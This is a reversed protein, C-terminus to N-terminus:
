GARDVPQTALPSLAQCLRDVEVALDVLAEGAEALDGSRAAEEVRRAADQALRASFNGVSGKLGHAQTHLAEAEGDALAQKMAAVTEPASGLFMGALEGLLERDGDLRALAGALDFLEGQPTQGGGGTGPGEAAVSPGAAGAAAWLARTLEKPDIPKSVYDDMGAALCDERDGKMAHATMAVIWQHRGTEREAERIKRTAALGDMEPMQVDMFVAGFAELRLAALAEVGNRVATVAHGRNELVRTALRCNVENDEALLIRLPPEARTETRTVGPRDPPSGSPGGLGFLSTFYFTSGEGPRSELWIRGGMLEVLQSSITLGLGTGGYRRSTSGDAQEFANFIARQKEWPIGIGTDRVAFRLHAKGEERGELMVCVVVEGRDTFKIANGLLNTLVQRLRGSDGVLADPVTSPVECRLALGKQEARLAVPRVTRDLAERLSFRVADFELKGAEVKSSDLIDNIVRMLDEASARVTELCERQPATLDTELALQTMGIVGNMPTRIEHSMNALFESKARNAAEAAEKAQRLDQEAQRRRANILVKAVEDAVQCAFTVDGPTWSREPGVHELCIVGVVKGAVRIAANLLSTIGLPGLYTEAFERTRPDKQADAADIAGSAQLAKFYEPYDEARFETGAVHRGTTREFLDVCRLRKGDPSFLWVGAREVDLGRSATRTVARAAEELEAGNVAENTSLRYIAAQQLQARRLEARRQEAARRRESVEAKLERTRQEVRQELSARFAQLRAMLANFSSALVSIEDQGGVELPALPADTTTEAAQRFHGTIKALRRVVLFRFVLTVAVFLGGLGGAIVALQGTAEARMQARVRDTPIAVTDLAVVDGLKRGFGARDGYQQRMSAPADEPRGHCRLCNKEMRRASFHALYPKGNMEIEGVWRDANPDRRFHDLIRREAPGALNAPNRPDDSSFKIVYDPFKRRVKEFVNRAVYTSSMAEPIFEDPGIQEAVVPRIRQAVYERIALEFELALAGQQAILQRLHRDAADWTRYLLLASFAVVFGGVALLFRTGIKRM